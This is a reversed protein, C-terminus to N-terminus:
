KIIQNMRARNQEAKSVTNAKRKKNRKQKNSLSKKIDHKKNNKAIRCLDFHISYPLMTEEIGGGSDGGCKGGMKRSCFYEM